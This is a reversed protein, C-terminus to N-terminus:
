TTVSLLVPESFVGTCLCALRLDPTLNLLAVAMRGLPIFTEVSAPVRKVYEVFHEPLWM